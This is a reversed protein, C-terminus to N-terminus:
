FVLSAALVQEAWPLQVVLVKQAFQEFNSQFLSFEVFNPYVLVVAISVAISLVYPEEKTHLELFLPVALAQV